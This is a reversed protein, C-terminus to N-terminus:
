PAIATGQRATLIQSSAGRAAAEVVVGECGVIDFSDLASDGFDGTSHDTERRRLTAGVGRQKSDPM